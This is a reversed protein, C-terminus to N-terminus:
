NIKRWKLMFAQLVRSIEANTQLNQLLHETLSLKELLEHPEYNWTQIAMEAYKDQHYLLTPSINNRLCMLDRLYMLLYQGWLAVSQKGLPTLIDTFQWIEEPSLKATGFKLALNRLDHEDELLEEARTVSGNSMASILQAQQPELQYHRELLEKLVEPALPGFYVQTCRSLITPLLKERQSTILIFIVESGPEELTKLLANMAAENLTHADNILVVRYGEFYAAQALISQMQRIQQITILPTAKEKDPSLYIFDPDNGNDFRMSAPTASTLNPDKALVAKALARATLQKGIGESGVFLLAHPLKNSRLLQRLDAKIKDHGLISQWNLAAPTVESM